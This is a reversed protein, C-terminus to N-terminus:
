HIREDPLVRPCGSLRDQLHQRPGEGTPAAEAPGARTNVFAATPDKEEQQHEGIRPHPSSALQGGHPRTPTPVARTNLLHFM